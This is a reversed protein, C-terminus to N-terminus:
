ANAGIRETTPGCPDACEDDLQDMPPVVAAEAGLPAVVALIDEALDLAVDDANLDAADTTHSAADPESDEPASGDVAVNRPDPREAVPEEPEVFKALSLSIIVVVAILTLAYRAGIQNAVLGLLPPAALSAMSAFATVVSVRAAAHLPDDSAAAIGIPFVLAAGFGWLAVGITAILLNPALGFLAIGTLAAAGSMRVVRVRGHADILRTGAIRFVTMSGVFVGFVLAGLAETKGFGDVVAISLWDNASGESLSAAMIVFGLMITRKERWAGLSAALRVRRSLRPGADLAPAPMDGSGGNLAHAAAAREAPTITDLIIKPVSILRWALLGATTALFQVEVPVGAWSAGAGMLTGLLAGISFGAHFQPIVTRRMRREVASAEVNLPVNNIAFSVGNLFIGSALMPVSTFVVGGTLLLMAAVFGTTAIHMMRLGGFRTVLPGSAAVTLLSGVAGVLLVVGIQAEDLGLADRISPLRSLWSSMMIGMLTFIGMLHWRARIVTRAVPPALPSSALPM